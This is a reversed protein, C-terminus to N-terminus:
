KARALREERTRMSFIECLRRSTYTLNDHSLM